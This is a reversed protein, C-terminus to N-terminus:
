TKLENSVEKLKKQWHEKEKILREKKNKLQHLALYASEVAIKKRRLTSISRMTKIDQLTNRKMERLSM